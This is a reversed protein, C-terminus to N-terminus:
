IFFIKLHNFKGSYKKHRPRMDRGANLFDIAASFAILALFFILAFARMIKSYIYKSVYFLTKRKIFIILKVLLYKIMQNELEATSHFVFKIKNTGYNM